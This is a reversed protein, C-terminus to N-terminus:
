PEKFVLDMSLTKCSFQFSFDYRIKIELLKNEMKAIHRKFHKVWGTYPRKLPQVQPASFNHTGWASILCDCCLLTNTQKCVDRKVGSRWEKIKVVQFSALTKESLLPNSSQQTFPSRRLVRVTVAPCILIATHVPVKEFSM